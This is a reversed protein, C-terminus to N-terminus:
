CVAVANEGLGDVTGDLLATKIGEKGIGGKICRQGTVNKFSVNEFTAVAGPWSEWLTYNISYADVFDVKGLNVAESAGIYLNSATTNAITLGDITVNTNGNMPNDGDGHLMVAAAAKNLYNCDHVTNNFVTLNHVYDAEGWFSFEPGLDLAGYAVGEFLNNAIM